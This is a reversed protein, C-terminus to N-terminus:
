PRLPWCMNARAGQLKAALDLPRYCSSIGLQAGEFRGIIFADGSAGSIFVRTGNSHVVVSNMVRSHDIAFDRYPTRAQNLVFQTLAPENRLAQYVLFKKLRDGELPRVGDFCARAQGMPNVAHRDYDALTLRIRLSDWWKMTESVGFNPDVPDRCIHKRVHGDLNSGPDAHDGPGWQPFGTFGSMPRHAALMRVLAVIAAQTIGSQDGNREMVVKIVDLAQPGLGATNATNFIAEIDTLVTGANRALYFRALHPRDAVPVGACAAGLATWRPLPPAAPLVSVRCGFALNIQKMALLKAPANGGQDLGRLFNLLLNLQGNCVARFDDVADFAADLTARSIQEIPRLQGPNGVNLGYAHAFTSAVAKINMNPPFPM